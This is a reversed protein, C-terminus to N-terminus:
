TAWEALPRVGAVDSAPVRVEGPREHVGIRAARALWEDKSLGGPEEEFVAAAMLVVCEGDITGVRGVYLRPGRTDVVCTIGHLPHADRHFTGM